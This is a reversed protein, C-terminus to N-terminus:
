QHQQFHDSQHSDAVRLAHPRDDFAYAPDNPRPDHAWGARVTGGVMASAAALGAGIKLAARQGVQISTTSKM